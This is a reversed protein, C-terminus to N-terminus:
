LLSKKAVICWVAILTILFQSKSFVLLCSWVLSLWSCCCSAEQRFRFRRGVSFDSCWRCAIPDDKTRLGRCVSAEEPRVKIWMKLVCPKGTIEPLYCFVRPEQGRFYLVRQLGVGCRKLFDCGPIFIQNGFRILDYLLLSLDPSFSFLVLKSPYSRLPNLRAGHQRTRGPLSSGEQFPM